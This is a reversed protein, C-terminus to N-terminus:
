ISEAVDLARQLRMVTEEKGMLGMIPILAPGHDGGMLAWRLLISGGARVIEHTNRDRYTLNKILPKFVGDLAATNWKRASVADAADLFCGIARALDCPEKGNFIEEFPLDRARKELAPVSVAWFLHENEKVWDEINSKPEPLKSSIRLAQLIYEDMQAPTGRQLDQVLEANAGLEKQFRHPRISDAKADQHLIIHNFRTVAANIPKLWLDSLLAMDPPDRDVLIRRHKANLYGLKDFSVTIDGKGCRLDFQGRLTM